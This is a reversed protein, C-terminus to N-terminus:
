KGNTGRFPLVKSRVKPVSVIIIASIIMITVVAIVPAAWYYWPISKKKNKPDCPQVFLSVIGPSQTVTPCGPTETKVTLTGANSSKTSNSSRAVDTKMRSEDSGQVIIELIGDLLSDDLSQMSAIEGDCQRDTPLANANMTIQIHSFPQLSVQSAIISSTPLFSCHGDPHLTPHLTSDMQITGNNTISGNVKVQSSESLLIAGGENTLDGDVSLLYGHPVTLSSFSDLTLSTNVIWNPGGLPNCFGNNPIGLLTCECHPGSLSLPCSCTDRLICNGTACGLMGCYTETINLFWQNTSSLWFFGRYGFLELDDMNPPAVSFFASNAIRWGSGNAVTVGPPIVFDLHGYVTTSAFVSLFQTPFAPEYVIRFHGEPTVKIIANSTSITTSLLVRLTGGIYIKGNGLLSLEEEVALYGDLHFWDAQDLEVFPAVVSGTLTLNSLPSPARLQLTSYAGRTLDFINNDIIATIATINLLPTTTPYPLYFTSNVLEFSDTEVNLYQGGTWECREFRYSGGYTISGVTSIRVLDFLSDLAVFTQPGDLGTSKFVALSGTGSSHLETGIIIFHDVNQFTMTIVATFKSAELRITPSRASPYPASTTLNFITVQSSADPPSFTSSTVNEIHVSALSLLPASPMPFFYVDANSLTYSELAPMSPITIYSMANTVWNDLILHVAQLSVLVTGGGLRVQSLTLTKAGLRLANPLSQYRFEVTLSGDTTSANFGCLLAPTYNLLV